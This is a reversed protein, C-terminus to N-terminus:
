LNGIDKTCRHLSGLVCKLLERERQSFRVVLVAGKLGGCECSASLSLWQGEELKM